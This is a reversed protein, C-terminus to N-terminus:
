FLSDLHNVQFLFGIPLTLAVEVSDPYRLNKDKCVEFLYLNRLIQNELADRLDVPLLKVVPVPDLGIEDLAMSLRSIERNSFTNPLSLSEKFVRDPFCADLFYRLFNELEQIDWNRFIIEIGNKEIEGM